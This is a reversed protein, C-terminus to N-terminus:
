RPERAGYMAADARALLTDSTEGSQWEALGVSVSVPVSGTALEEQLADFRASAQEIALGTLVCVFEDGGYRLAIDYARMSNALADGVSRLVADGSAHGQDDNVIKLGDVDIFAVVLPECSRASRAIERELAMLGIGRQLVGTLLDRQLIEREEDADGRAHASMERDLAAERRDDAAVIRDHASWERETAEQRRLDQREGLDIVRVISREDVEADHDREDARRRRGEAQRDREDARRDREDARRDRPDVPAVWRPEMTGKLVAM